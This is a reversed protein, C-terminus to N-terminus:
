VWDLIRRRMAESPVAGALAGMNDELHRPDSTAPIVCTVAPHGLIWKLFVQAWSRAGFETAEPPLGRGRTRAFLQGQAFPRNILVAVGRDAALSLLRRDADREALSYNVQLFDLEHTTIARELQAHAGATYHTVGVYRVIGEAKWEALTGLHADADVLNHVQMLEIRDARLRDLSTRMQREGEARGRTWVKTALFLSPRLNLERTLDGVVGESRNYMPSSDIVSGGQAVFRRLVDRLPARETEGAGVDFTQWTGLGIAPVEEGSSPIRRRLRAEQAAGHRAAPTLDARATSPTNGGSVSPSRVGLAAAAALTRALVARRTLDPTV